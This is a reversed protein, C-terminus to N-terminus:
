DNNNTTWRKDRHLIWGNAEVSKVFQVGLIALVALIFTLAFTAKKM